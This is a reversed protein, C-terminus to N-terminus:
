FLMIFFSKPATTTNYYVYCKRRRRRESSQETSYGQIFSPLYRAIPRTPNELLSREKGESQQSGISVIISRITELRLDPLHQTKQDEVHIFHLCQVSDCTASPSFVKLVM